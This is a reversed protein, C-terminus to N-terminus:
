ATRIAYGCRHGDPCECYTEEGVAIVHGDAISKEYPPMYAGCDFCFAGGDDHVFEMKNTNM